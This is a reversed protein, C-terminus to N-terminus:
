SFYYERAEPNMYCKPDSAAIDGLYHYANARCGYCVDRNECEEGCYGKVDHFLLLDDRHKEVIEALSQHFINGASFNILFACPSVRGDPEILLNTHCYAMGGADATGVRLWEKSTKKARYELARRVESLSPELSRDLDGFGEPKFYVYLILRVGMQDVFWDLTEEISQVSHKSLTICVLVKEPPYGAELLNRYGRIKADLTRPDTHLKNYIDQNITDIHVSVSSLSPGLQCLQRAQQKSILGSTLICNQMGKDGAYNCIEYWDPHLLPDGGSWMVFRVGLDWAEDMLKIAREKPMELDCSETSSAFCYICSGACRTNIEFELSYPRRDLMYQYRDGIMENLLNSFEGCMVENEVM